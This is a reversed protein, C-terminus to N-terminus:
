VAVYEVEAEVYLASFAGYLNQSELSRKHALRSKSEYNNASTRGAPIM